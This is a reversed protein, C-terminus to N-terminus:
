KLYNEGYIDKDADDYPVRSKGELLPRFYIFIIPIIARISLTGAIAEIINL